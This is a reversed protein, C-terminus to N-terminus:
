LRGKLCPVIARAQIPLPKDFGCDRVGRLLEEKLELEDFSECRENAEDSAEGVGVSTM